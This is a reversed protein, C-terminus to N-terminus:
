RGRTGRGRNTKGAARAAARRARALRSARPRPGRCRVPGTEVGRSMGVVYSASPAPALEVFTWSLSVEFRALARSVEAAWARPPSTATELYIAAKSRDGPKTLVRARGARACGWRADRARALERGGMVGGADDPLLEELLDEAQFYRRGKGYHGSAGDALALPHLDAFAKRAGPGRVLLVCDCLFPAM